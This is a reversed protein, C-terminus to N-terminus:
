KSSLYRVFQQKPFDFDIKCDSNSELAKVLSFTYDILKRQHDTYCDQKLCAAIPHKKGIVVLFAQPNLELFSKAYHGLTDKELQSIKKCNKDKKYFFFSVKGVFNCDILRSLYGIKDILIKSAKSNNSSSGDVSNVSTTSRTGENERAIFCIMEEMWEPKSICGEM